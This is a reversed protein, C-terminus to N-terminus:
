VLQSLDLPWVGQGALSEVDLSSEWVVTRSCGARKSPGKLLTTVTEFSELVCNSFSLYADLVTKTIPCSGHQQGCFHYVSILLLLLM